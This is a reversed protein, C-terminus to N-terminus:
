GRWRPTTACPWGRRPTSTGSCAALRNCASSRSRRTSSPRRAAARRSCGPWPCATARRPVPPQEPARAGRLDGAVQARRDPPRAEGPGAPDFAKTDDRTDDFLSRDPGLPTDLDGLRVLNVGSRALRDALQDAREPELFATPPLLGVGYFRARGGKEFALRGDKVTVFGKQGAPAPLLFSVDLASKPAIAPSPPSARALGRHRGRRPYPVWSGVEPNPSSTIRVDDIRISGIGDTKEFQIVARAARPPVAVVAQDTRWDFTGAWGFRGSARRPARSRSASTTSSSSPRQRGAARRAPGPRPGLALASREGPRRGAPGPRDPRAAGVQALELAAGSRHGPFVRHADNNVIWYAPAPDGLEFDGNVVLNTTAAEGGPVLEVTLGDIDLIGTAGLLGVSMIADRADPPVPIRKAVRTWQPQRGHPDLAGDDRAQLHLLEDGLFDILLGPEEGLREGYQVNNLRVWLGLIIAETKRGDVGFARSVAARAPGAAQVRVPHLPARRSGGAADSIADRANYWGDPVGDSNADTEMDDLAPPGPREIEPEQRRPRRASRRGM